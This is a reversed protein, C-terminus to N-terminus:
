DEDDQKYNHFERKEFKYCYLNKDGDCKLFRIGNKNYTRNLFDHKPISFYYIGNLEWRMCQLFSEALRWNNVLIVIFKEKVENIIKSEVYCLGQLNIDDKLFKPYGSKIIINAKKVADQLSINLKTSLYLSVSSKDKLTINRIM